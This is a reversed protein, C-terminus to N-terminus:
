EENQQVEKTCIVRDFDYKLANISEHAAKM